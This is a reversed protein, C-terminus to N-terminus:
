LQKKLEIYKNKYKLYKQYYGGKQEPQIPQIPQTTQLKINNDLIGYYMKNNGKECSKMEISKNNIQVTNNNFFDKLMNDIDNEMKKNSEKVKTNVYDVIKDVTDNPLTPGDGQKVNFEILITEKKQKLVRSFNLDVDSREFSTYVGFTEWSNNLIFILSVGRKDFYTILEILFIKLLDKIESIINDITPDYTIIISSIRVSNIRNNSNIQDYFCFNKYIYRNDEYAFIVLKMSKDSNYRIFRKKNDPDIEFNQESM